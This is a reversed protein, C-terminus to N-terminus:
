DLHYFGQGVRKKVQTIHMPTFSNRLRLLIIERELLKHVEDLPANENIAVYMDNLLGHLGRGLALSREQYEDIDM